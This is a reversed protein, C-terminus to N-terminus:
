PNGLHELAHIVASIDLGGEGSASTAQYLQEVATALPLVAGVAEAAALAYGVDKAMYDVPFGPRFAHDAPSTAVVGAVPPFSQLVAGNAWSGTMATHAVRSDVGYLTTLRFAEAIAGMTIGAILNNALKCVKASGLPGTYILQSCLTSLVPQWREFDDVDGGVMLTVRAAAASETSGSVSGDLVHIGQASLHAGIRQITGPDITSTDIFTTGPRAGSGAGNPGTLVTEVDGATPLM